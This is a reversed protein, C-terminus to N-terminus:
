VGRPAAFATATAPSAAATTASAAESNAPFGAAAATTTSATAASAPSVLGADAALVAASSARANSLSAWVAEIVKPPLQKTINDIQALLLEVSPNSVAPPKSSTLQPNQFSDDCGELDSRKLSSEEQGHQQHQQQQQDQQEVDVAPSRTSLGTERISFDVAPQRRATNQQEQQLEQRLQQPESLTGTPRSDFGPFAQQLAEEAAIKRTHQTNEDGEPRQQAQKSKLPARVQSTDLHLLLPQSPPAAPSSPCNGGRNEEELPGNTRKLDSSSKGRQGSYFPSAFTTLQNHITSSQDTTVVSCDTFQGITNWPGAPSCSSAPASGTESQQLAHSRVHQTSHGTDRGDGDNTEVNGDGDAAAPSAAWSSGECCLSSRRSGSAAAAAELPSPDKADPSVSPPQCLQLADAAPAGRHPRPASGGISTAAGSATAAAQSCAQAKEEVFTGPSSSPAWGASSAPLSCPSVSDNAAGALDKEGDTSVQLVEGNLVGEAPELVTASDPRDALEVNADAATAAAAAPEATPAAAPPTVLSTDAAPSAANLPPTGTDVTCAEDQSKLKRVLCPLGMQHARHSFARPSSTGASWWSNMNDAAEQQPCPSPSFTLAGEIELAELPRSSGGGPPMLDSLDMQFYSRANQQMRGLLQSQAEQQSGETQRGDWHPPFPSICTPLGTSADECLSKGYSAPGAASLQRRASIHTDLGPSGLPGALDSPGLSLQLSLDTDATGDMDTLKPQADDALSLPGEPDREREDIEKLRPAIYSNCASPSPLSDCGLSASLSTSPTETSSGSADVQQGRWGKSSEGAASGPLSWPEQLASAAAAAAASASGAPSVNLFPPRLDQFSRLQFSSARSLPSSEFRQVPPEEASQTPAPGSVPGESKGENEESGDKPLRRVELPEVADRSRENEGCFPAHVEPVPHRYSPFPFLSLGGQRTDLCESPQPAHASQPHDLMHSGQVQVPTKIRTLPQRQSAAAATAATPQLMPAERLTLAESPRQLCRTGRTSGGVPCPLRRSHQQPQQVPDLQQLSPLGGGATAAAAAVALETRQPQSEFFRANGRLGKADKHWPTASDTDKSQRDMDLMPFVQPFAKCGEGDRSPSHAAATAVLPGGPQPPVGLDRGAVGQGFLACNDGDGSGYFPFPGPSPLGFDYALKYAVLRCVEQVTQGTPTFPAMLSVPSRHSTDLGDSAGSSTSRGPISCALGIKKFQVKLEQDGIILAAKKYQVLEYAAQLSSLEVFAYPLYNSRERMEVCVVEGHELLFNIASRLSEKSTGPLMNSVYVSRGHPTNPRDSKGLGLNALEGGDGGPSSSDGKPRRRLSADLPMKVGLLRELPQRVTRRICENVSIGAHRDFCFRCPLPCHEGRHSSRHCNPCVFEGFPCNTIKHEMSDCSLCLTSKAYAEVMEFRTLRLPRSERQSLVQKAQWMELTTALPLEAPTGGDETLRRPDALDSLENARQSGETASTPKFPAHPTSPFAPIAPTAAGVAAASSSATAATADGGVSHNCSLGMWKNSCSYCELAVEPQLPYGVSGHGELLMNQQLQLRMGRQVAQQETVQKQQQHQQLHQQQHLHQQLLQQQLQQQLQPPNVQGAQIHQRQVQQLHQLQQQHRQKQQHFFHSHSSSTPFFNHGKTGQQHMQQNQQQQHLTLAERSEGLQVSLHAREVSYPILSTVHSGAGTQPGQPSVKMASPAGGRAANTSSCVPVSADTPGKDNTAAHMALQPQHLTNNDTSFTHTTQFHLPVGRSCGDFAFVAAAAGPMETDTHTSAGGSPCLPLQAPAPAVAAQVGPWLLHSASSHASQLLHTCGLYSDNNKQQLLQQQQPPHQQQRQQPHHPHQQLHLHLAATAAVQQTEEDHHGSRLFSGDTATDLGSSVEM